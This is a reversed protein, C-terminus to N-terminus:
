LSSDDVDEEDSMHDKVKAKM